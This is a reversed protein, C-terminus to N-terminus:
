LTDVNTVHFALTGAKRCMQINLACDDYVVDIGLERCKMAKWESHLGRLTDEYEQSPWPWIYEHPYIHFNSRDDLLINGFGLAILQTFTDLRQSPKRATIFHVDGGNRVWSQALFRFFEPHATITHDIDLALKM